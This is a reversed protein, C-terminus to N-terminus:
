ATVEVQGWNYTELKGQLRLKLEGQILERGGATTWVESGDEAVDVISYPNDHFHSKCFEMLVDLFLAKAEEESDAMTSIGTLPNYVAYKRM